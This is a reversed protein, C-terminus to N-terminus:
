FLCTFFAFFFYIFQHHLFLLRFTTSFFLTIFRIEFPIFKTEDSCYLVKHKCMSYLFFFEFLFFFNHAQAISVHEFDMNEVDIHILPNCLLFVLVCWLIIIYSSTCACLACVDLLCCCRTLSFSYAFPTFYCWKDNRISWTFWLPRVFTRENLRIRSRANKKQKKSKRGKKEKFSLM